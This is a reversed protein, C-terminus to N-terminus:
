QKIDLVVWCYKESVYNKKQGFKESVTLGYIKTM